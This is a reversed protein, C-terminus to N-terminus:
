NKLRDYMAGVSRVTSVKNKGYVPHHGLDISKMLENKTRGNAIGARVQQLMDALFARQWKLNETTAPEGHGPIVIRPNWSALTDLVQLWRDFDADPDAVNNGWPNGNVFLDGTILIREKPLWVVADGATHAPGMSILEIRHTGDYFSLTDGFTVSPFAQTYGSLSQGSYNHDWERKGLTKMERSTAATSVIVAGADRFVSNGFTHDHHYHTNVVFRVPKDTTKKVEDLIEKAAWPYNADVIVAYRDFVIWVCNASRHRLEDGFYYFVGPAIESVPAHQSFTATASLLAFAFCASKM